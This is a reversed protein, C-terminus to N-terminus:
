ACAPLPPLCANLPPAAARRHLSPITLCLFKSVARVQLLLDHLRQASMVRADGHVGGGVAYPAQYAANVTAAASDVIRQMGGAERLVGEAVRRATEIVAFSYIHRVEQNLQAFNVGFPTVGPDGPHGGTAGPPIPQAGPPSPPCGRQQPSGPLRAGADSFPGPKGGAGGGGYPYDSFQSGTPTVTRARAGAM